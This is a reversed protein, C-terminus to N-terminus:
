LNRKLRKDQQEHPEENTSMKKINSYVVLVTIMGGGGGGGRTLTWLYSTCIFDYCVRACKQFNFVLFMTFTEKLSLQPTFAKEVTMGYLALQRM